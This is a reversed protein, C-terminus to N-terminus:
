TIIKRVLDGTMRALFVTLPHKGHPVYFTTEPKLWGNERWYKEDLSGTQKGRERQLIRFMMLSFFPPRSGKRELIDQLIKRAIDGARRDFRIQMEEVDMKAGTVFGARGSLHFGWTLFAGSMTNLTSFCSSGGTTALLYVPKGAFEPRHCVYAMRDIWNKIIGSANDVYVPSAAIVGDARHIMDRILQVDDKLPCHEAGRDFCTRCGQCLGINMHGLFITKIEFPVDAKAALKAMKDTIIEAIHTTNGNKRHSGQIVLIKM